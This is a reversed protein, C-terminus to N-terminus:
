VGNGSIHKIEFQTCKIREWIIAWDQNSREKQQYGGGESLVAKM